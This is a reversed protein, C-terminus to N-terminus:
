RKQFLGIWAKPPDVQDSGFYGAQLSLVKFHPEVVSVLESASLQPPGVGRKPEDANGVLSLWLGDKALVVSAHKAFRSRGKKSSVSHMCGRDMLLGFREHPLHDVLFDAVRFECEVNASNAKERAVAIATESLDCGEVSFGQRALWIVNEGTGCGVDLARCPKLKLRRITAVLNVDAAGHDWPTDGERYREEFDNKM